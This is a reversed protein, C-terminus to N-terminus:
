REHRLQFKRYKEIFDADPILGLMSLVGVAVSLRLVLVEDEAPLGRLRRIVIMQKRNKTGIFVDDTSIYDSPDTTAAQKNTKNLGPHPPATVARHTYPNRRYEYLYDALKACKTM